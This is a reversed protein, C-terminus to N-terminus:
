NTINWEICNRWKHKATPKMMMHLVEKATSFSEDKSKVCGSLVPHFCDRDPKPQSPQQQNNIIINTGTETRRFWFTRVFLHKLLQYCREYGCKKSLSTLVFRNPYYKPHCEHIIIHHLLLLIMGQQQQQQQQQSWYGCYIRIMNRM